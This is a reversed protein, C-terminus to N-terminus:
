RGNGPERLALMMMRILVGSSQLAEVLDARDLGCSFLRKDGDWLIWRVAGNELVEFEVRTIDALGEPRDLAADLLKDNIM